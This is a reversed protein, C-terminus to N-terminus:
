PITTVLVTCSGDAPSVPLADNAPLLFFEGCHYIQGGCTARGGVITVLAFDGSPQLDEPATLIKKEV